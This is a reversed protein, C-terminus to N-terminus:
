DIGGESQYVVFPLVDVPGLMIVFLEEVSADIGEVLPIEQIFDESLLSSISWIVLVHQCTFRPLGLGSLNTSDIVLVSTAVGYLRCRLHVFFHFLTVGNRLFSCM